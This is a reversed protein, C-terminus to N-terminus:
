FRFPAIENHILSTAPSSNARQHSMLSWQDQAARTIQNQTAVREAYSGM